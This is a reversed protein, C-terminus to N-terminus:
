AVEQAKLIRKWRAPTPAGVMTGDKRRRLFAWIPAGKPSLGRYSFVGERVHVFISVNESM